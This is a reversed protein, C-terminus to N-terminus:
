KVAEAPANTWAPPTIPSPGDWPRYRNGGSPTSCGWLWVALATCALALVAAVLADAWLIGNRRRLALMEECLACVPRGRPDLGSFEDASIARHCLACRPPAKM